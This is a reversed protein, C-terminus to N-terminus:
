DYWGFDNIAKKLMWVNYPPAMIPLECGPALIFGGPHKKGKIICLKAQEYVQEPSANQIIAPEINGMIIDNPFYIYLIKDLSM